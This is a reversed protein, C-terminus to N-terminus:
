ARRKEKARNPPLDTFGTVGPLRSLQNLRAIREIPAPHFPGPTHPDPFRQLFLSLAKGFGFSAAFEDAEFEDQRALASLRGWKRPDLLRLLRRGPHRHYLHGLEHLLVAAKEHPTLRDLVAGRSVTRFPGFGLARPFLPM